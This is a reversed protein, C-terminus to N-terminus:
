GKTGTFVPPIRYHACNRPSPRPWRLPQSYRASPVRIFNGPREHFYRPLISEGDTRRTRPTRSIIRVSRFLVAGKLESYILPSRLPRSSGSPFIPFPPFPLRSPFFLRCRVIGIPNRDFNSPAAFTRPLKALRVNYYSAKWEARRAGYTEVRMMPQYGM